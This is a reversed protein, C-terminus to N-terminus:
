KDSKLTIILMAKLWCGGGVFKYPVYLHGLFTFSRTYGLKVRVLLNMCFLSLILSGGGLLFDDDAEGLCFYCVFVSYVVNLDHM